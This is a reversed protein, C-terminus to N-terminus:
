VTTRAEPGLARREALEAVMRRLARESLPYALMAGVARDPARDDWGTRDGGRGVGERQGSSGRDRRAPPARPARRQGPYEGSSQQRDDRALNFFLREKRGHPEEDVEATAGESVGGRRAADQLLARDLLPVSLREAVGRGVVSAGAGYLSAITVVPARRTESM